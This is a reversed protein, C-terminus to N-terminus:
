ALLTCFNESFPSNGIAKPDSSKEVTEVWLQHQKVISAFCFGCHKKVMEGSQTKKRQIEKKECARM